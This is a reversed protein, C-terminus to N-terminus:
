KPVGTATIRVVRASALRQVTRRWEHPTTTRDERAWMVSTRIRGQQRYGAAAMDALLRAKETAVVTALEQPNVTLSDRSAVATATFTRTATM